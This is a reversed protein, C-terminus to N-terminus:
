IDRRHVALWRLAVVAAASVSPMQAAGALAKPKTRRPTNGASSRKAGFDRRLTLAQPDADDKSVQPHKRQQRLLALALSLSFSFIRNRKQPLLHSFFVLANKSPDRMRWGSVFHFLQVYIDDDGCQIVYHVVSNVGGGGERVRGGVGSCDFSLKIRVIHETFTM